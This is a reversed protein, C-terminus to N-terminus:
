LKQDKQLVLSVNNDNEALLKKAAALDSGTEAMVISLPVNLGSEKL